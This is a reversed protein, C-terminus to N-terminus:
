LLVQQRAYFFFITPVYETLLWTGEVDGDVDDQVTSTKCLKVANDVAGEQLV